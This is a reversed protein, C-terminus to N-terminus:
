KGLKKMAKSTKQKADTPNNTPTRAVAAADLANRIDDDVAHAYKATTAVDSHGLLNQVVRLNSQRLVRTAATHHTDHFRFNSVGANPIARRMATKLGSETLPYRKGKVLDRPKLTRQAVFTFVKTPHHDKENWLLDFIAQSMPITRIKNGKGTVTLWRSFFDVHAWELEIDLEAPGTVSLLDWRGPLRGRKLFRCYVLGNAAKALCLEDILGAHPAIRPKEALVVWGDKIAGMNHGRVVFSFTDPTVSPAPVHFLAQSGETKANINM